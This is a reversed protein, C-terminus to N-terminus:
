SVEAKEPVYPEYGPFTPKRTQPAPPVFAAVPKEKPEEIAKSLGPKMYEARLKRETELEHRLWLIEDDKAKCATCGFLGM